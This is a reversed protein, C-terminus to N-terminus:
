KRFKSYEPLEGSNYKKLLEVTDPHLKCNQLGTCTCKRYSEDSKRCDYITYVLIGILVLAFITFVILSVNEPNIKKAKAM